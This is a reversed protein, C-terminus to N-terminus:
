FAFIEVSLKLIGRDDNSPLSSNFRVELIKLELQLKYVSNCRFSYCNELYKGRIDSIGFIGVTNPNQGFVM